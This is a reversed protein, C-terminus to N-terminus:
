ELHVKGVVTVSCHPLVKAANLKANTEGEARPEHMIMCTNSAPLYRYNQIWVCLILVYLWKRRIVSLLYIPSIPYYM